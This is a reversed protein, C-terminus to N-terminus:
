KKQKRRLRQLSEPTGDHYSDFWKDFPMFVVGYNCDFYRHHLQHHFDGMNAVTKGNVKLTKFGAHGVVAGLVNEYMQYIMHIPHSAIVFHILVGSFYIVHEVPNMSIGSWPGVNSNRHHVIHSIKYLPKWHM